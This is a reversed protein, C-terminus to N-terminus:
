NKPLKDYIKQWEKPLNKISYQKDFIQDDTYPKYPPKAVWIKFDRYDGPVIQIGYQLKNNYAIFNVHGWSWKGEKKLKLRLMIKAIKAEDNDLPKEREIRKWEAEAIKRKIAIQRKEIKPKNLELILKKNKGKEEKLDRFAVEAETKAVEAETKAVEAETKAVEAETKAVEAEQSAKFVNAHAVDRELKLNDWTRERMIKVGCGSLFIALLIGLFVRKM